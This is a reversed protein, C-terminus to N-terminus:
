NGILIFAGWFFPSPYKAKIKQQANKFAQRKDKIKMTAYEQRYTTLLETTAEDDVKWLSMIISQAGALQFARQLGYVGEGSQTKGLGTECASMIVETNELSLGAVEYASLLADEKMEGSREFKFYDMIGALIIGSNLMPNNSPQNEAQGITARDKDTKEAAPLFFGHTAIHLIAPNKANKIREETADKGLHLETKYNKKLIKEVAIVEAETGPLDSFYANALWSDKQNNLDIPTKDAYEKELKKNILYSPRGILIATNNTSIKVENLIDRTSTVSHIDIEDIVYKGTATNLLTNLNIQTYIGDPAVYVREIGQLNEAFKQWFVKYTIKDEKKFKVSNKYFYLDEEMSYGNRLFVIEPATTNKKIVFGAYVVTDAQLTLRVIEIAAEKDKLKKQIDKWNFIKTNFAEDFNKSQTSLDKELANALRELSDLNVKKQRSESAGLNYSKAIIERINQWEEYKKILNKDNSALINKKAKSTANLILGKTSLLLNYADGLLADTTPSAKGANRQSQNVAFLVFNDLFPKNTNFFLRKEEESLASFNEEIQVFVSKVMRQYLPEAQAFKGQTEFFLAANNLTSTTNPHKEGLNQVFIELAEKYLPEAKAYLKNDEFLIALNNMSAAAKTSKAGFVVKRIELAKRYNAEAETNKNISQYFGALNDLSAAYEASKEGLTMKRINLAQKYLSEALGNQKNKRYLLAMANLTAAYEPHNTSLTGKRTELVQEYIKGAEAYRGMATYLNGLNNLISSYAVTNKGSVKEEIDLAQRFLPEAEVYKGMASYLTALHAATQAYEQTSIGKKSRSILNEKHIEAAQEYSGMSTYLIGLEDMLNMSIASDNGLVEKCAGLAELYLDEAENNRGQNKYLTALNELAEIYNTNKSTFTAKYSELGLNYLEEAKKFENTEYYLGALIIQTDAYKASNEGYKAKLVVLLKSLTAKAKPYSQTKLYCTALNNMANQYKQHTEGLTELFIAASQEYLPQAKDYRQLNDYLDALLNTTTAYEPSKKGVAKEQNAQAKLLLPEALVFNNMKTHTVAMNYSTTAYNFSNEGEKNKVIILAKELLGLSESYKEQLMKVRSFYNLTRSHPATQTTAAQERLYIADTFYKEAKVFDKEEGLIRGLDSLIVALYEEKGKKNQFQPLIEEYLVKAKPLQNLEEYCVALNGAIELYEPSDLGKQEKRIRAAQVFLPEAAEFKGKNSLLVGKANLTTAYDLHNEGITKKQIVLANDLLKEAEAIKGDKVYTFAQNVITKAYEPTDKGAVLASSTDPKEKPNKPNKVPVGELSNYLAEAKAKQGTANYLTALKDLTKVYDAHKDGLVKKRIALTKLYSKEPKLANKIDASAMAQTQFGALNYYFSGLKETDKGLTKEAEPEAKEGLDAAKAYNKAKAAEIMANYLEPFTQAKVSFNVLINLSFFFSLILLFHKKM